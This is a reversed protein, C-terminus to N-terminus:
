GIFTYKLTRSGGYRNEIYINGDGNCSITMHTDTGTTGSLVGTTFDLLAGANSSLLEPAVSVGTARFAVIAFPGTAGPSGAYSIIMIGTVTTPTITAAADDAIVVTNTRFYEANVGLFTPANATTLGTVDAQAVALLTKMAAYNAAGVLSRGNATIAAEAWTNVGTTYAFKDAATGLAAISTLTSDLPQVGVATKRSIEKWLTGNHRLRVIDGVSGTFNV